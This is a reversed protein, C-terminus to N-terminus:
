RRGKSLMTMKKMRRDCYFNSKYAVLGQPRKQEWNQKASQIHLIRARSSLTKKYKQIVSLRWTVKTWKVAWLTLWVLQPWKKQFLIKIFISCNYAISSKTPNCMLSTEQYHFLFTWWVVVMVTSYKHLCITKIRSPSSILSMLIMNNCVLRSASQAM